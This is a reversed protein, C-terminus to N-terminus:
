VEEDALKIFEFILKALATDYKERSVVNSILEEIDLDYSTSNPTAALYVTGEKDLLENIRISTYCISKIDFPPNAYRSATFNSIVVVDGDNDTIVCYKGSLSEIASHLKQQRYRNREISIRNIIERREELLIEIQDKIEVLKTKTSM